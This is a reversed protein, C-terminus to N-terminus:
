WLNKELGPAAALRSCRATLMELIGNDPDTESAAALRVVEPLERHYTVISTVTTTSTGIATVLLTAGGPGAALDSQLSGTSRTTTPVLKKEATVRKMTVGNKVIWRVEDPCILRSCAPRMTPMEKQILRPPPKNPPMAASRKPRRPMM